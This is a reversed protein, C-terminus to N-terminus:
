DWIGAALPAHLVVVTYSSLDEGLLADLDDDSILCEDFVRHIAHLDRDVVPLDPDFKQLHTILEHVRM